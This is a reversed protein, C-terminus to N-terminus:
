AAVYKSALNSLSGEVSADAEADMIENAVQAASRTIEGLFVIEDSTTRIYAVATYSRTLGYDSGTVGKALYWIYNEGSEVPVYPNVASVPKYFNKITSDNVLNYDKDAVETFTADVSGVKARESNYKTKIGSSTSLMVGVGLINSTGGDLEDWTTQSIKGGFKIAINTYTYSAPIGWQIDISNLYVANNTSRIGIFKYSGDVTISTSTGKVITGLSTGKTSDNFLDTAASYATNKGFVEISNANTTNTNWSVTIMKVDHNNTNATTVIGSNSNKTRLQISDYQGGSQGKYSVGSAFPETTWDNYDSGSVLTNSKTLTDVAGDGVKSYRYSLSTNTTVRESVKEAVTKERTTWKAYLTFDSEVNSLFNYENGATCGANTYWGSFDYHNDEDDPRTPAPDPEAVPNGDDVVVNTSSPAGDYNYNFTVTHTGAAAAVYSLSIAYVRINYSAEKEHRVMIGAANNAVPVSVTYNKGTTTEVKTTVTVSTGAIDSGDTAILNATLPNVLPDKTSGGGVKVVLSISTPTSTWIAGSTKKVGIDLGVTSNKDQYYDNTNTKYSVLVMEYGSTVTDTTGSRTFSFADTPDANVERAIKNSSNAVGVSVGIALALGLTAGIMRTLLKKM